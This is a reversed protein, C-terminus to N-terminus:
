KKLVRKHFSKERLGTQIKENKWELTTSKDNQHNVMSMQGIRWMGSIKNYKEFTATKLLEGTRDYYEVKQTLFTKTDTWSVQKTYGSNETVPVRSGMYVKKGNLTVIKADGSYSYKDADFSSLDEYSFESGMFAGSKNKSAIRKVRKLAPLYLWQDDNKKIHSYSLFKTGKVDAPSIFEMLSKDGGEKEFVLMKMNRERKQGNANVLTMTMDSKSDKFGHMVADNKQAVEQNSMAFLSLSM